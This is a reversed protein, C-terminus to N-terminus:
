FYSVAELKQLNSLVDGSPDLEFAAIRATLSSDHPAAAALRRLMQTMLAPPLGSAQLVEAGLRDALREADPGPLDDGRRTLHGVEHALAAALEDVDLLAALGRTVFLSGDRFAYAAPEDEGLVRVTVHACDCGVAIRALAAEARAYASGAEAQALVGGHRVSWAHWAAAGGVPASACAAGLLLLLSLALRVGSASHL